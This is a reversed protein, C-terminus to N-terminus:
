VKLMGRDYWTSFEHITYKSNKKISENISQWDSLNSANPNKEYLSRLTKWYIKYDKIGIVGIHLYDPQLFGKDHIQNVQQNSSTISAYQSSGEGVYGGVWNKDPAPVSETIITDSAHYIFPCQLESSAQLMSFGLSSGEGQYNKIHVFIFKRNPYVLELYDKVHKGFYGLTIVIEINKPYLDVIHSIVPKSGIKVLSKNTYKTIDGLRSGIGSTTILVKYISM